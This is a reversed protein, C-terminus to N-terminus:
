DLVRLSRRVKRKAQIISYKQPQQQEKVAGLVVNCRNCLIGRVKGTIHDHDISLNRGNISRGSCILCEHGQAEIMEIYQKPTLGYKRLHARRSHQKRLPYESMYKKYYGNWRERDRARYAVKQANVAKKNAQYYRKMADLRRQPTKSM